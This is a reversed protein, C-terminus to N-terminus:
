AVCERVQPAYMYVWREHRGPTTPLLVAGYGVVSDRGLADVAFVSLALRPWGFANTSKLTLDIPFNWV